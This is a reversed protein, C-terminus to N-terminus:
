VSGSISLDFTRKDHVVIPTYWDTPETQKAIIGQLRLVGGKKKMEHGRAKLAGIDAANSGV